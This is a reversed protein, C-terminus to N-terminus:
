SQGSSGALSFAEVRNRGSEKARYLAAEASHLVTEITAKPDCNTVTVGMSVTASVTGAPTAFSDKSVLRRIEEARRTATEEDCGPLLLLFEEGGSRGVLDYPRLDSTLRRALEVLVADVAPRGMTDNLLKSCDLNAIIVGASKGERQTRALERELSALIAARNMLNTLFDHTVSFRLLKQLDLTRKGVLIRAKLESPDVPKILYDDAGAELAAPLEQTGDKATLLVTYIYAGNSELTRIRHCLEIGDNGTLAWDLLVLTPADPVQLLGWADIWNEVAVYDLGLEKVCEAIPHKDVSDNVLLIKV